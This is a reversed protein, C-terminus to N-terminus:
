TVAFLVSIYYSVLLFFLLFIVGIWFPSFSVWIAYMLIMGLVGHKVATGIRSVESMRIATRLPPLVYALHIIIFVLPLIWNGLIIAYILIVLDVILYLGM